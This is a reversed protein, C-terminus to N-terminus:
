EIDDLARQVEEMLYKIIALDDRLDAPDEGAEREAIKQAILRGREHFLISYLVVAQEQRVRIRAYPESM